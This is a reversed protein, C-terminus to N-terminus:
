KNSETPTQGGGPNLNLISGINGMKPDPVGGGGMCKGAHTYMYFLLFLGIDASAVESPSFWLIM